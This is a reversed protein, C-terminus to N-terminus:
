LRGAWAQELLTPPKRYPARVRPGAPKMPEVRGQGHVLNELCVHNRAKLIVLCRVVTKKSFGTSTVLQDRTSPGRGLHRAITDVTEARSM